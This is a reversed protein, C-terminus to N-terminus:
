DKEGVKWTHVYGPCNRLVARGLSEYQRLIRVAGRDALVLDTLDLILVDGIPEADILLCLENVNGVDLQGSIRFVVRPDRTRQIRLM